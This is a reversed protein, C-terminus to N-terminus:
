DSEYLRLRSKLLFNEKQMRDVQQLLHMITEIGEVNIDLEYHFRILKELKGLEEFPIYSQRELVAVEILGSEKLAEVFSMEVKHSTCFDAASIM